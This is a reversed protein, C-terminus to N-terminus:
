RLYRVIVIGSGGDGGQSDQGGTAGAGGGGGGTNPMGDDGRPRDGGRPLNVGIDSRNVKFSRYTGSEPTASDGDGGGGVGGRGRSSPNDLGLDGWAGGGGGGAFWGDEGWRTGFINGYYRGAGGAGAVRDVLGNEGATGAGGGGSGPYPYDAQSTTLGGNNGFGYTGSDGSQSTQQALRQGSNRDTNRGGGSGGHM